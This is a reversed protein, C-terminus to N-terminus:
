SVNGEPSSTVRLNTMTADDRRRGLDNAGNLNTEINEKELPDNVTGTATTAVNNSQQRRFTDKHKCQHLSSAM